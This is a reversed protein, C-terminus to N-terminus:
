WCWLVRRRVASANPRLTYGPSEEVAGLIESNKPDRGLVAGIMVPIDGADPGVAPPICTVIDPVPKAEPAVTLKPPVGAEETFTIPLVDILRTEGGWAPPDTLTTTVFGPPWLAVCVFPYKYTAGVGGGATLPTVGFEPVVAPPVEMVMLPLWNEAPADTTM